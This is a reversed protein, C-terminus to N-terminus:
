RPAMAMLPTQTPASAPTDLSSTAVRPLVVCAALMVCATVVVYWPFVGGLGLQKLELAVTEVTGGFAATAISHGVGLGLARLHTPFLEAPAGLFGALFFLGLVMLGFVAFLNTTHQALTFIPVTVVITGVASIALLARRGFRDALLGALPQLVMLVVLAAFGVLAVDNKDLGASNVLFKPLYTTYTYWAVSGGTSIAVAVGLQRRHDRWLVSMGRQRVARSAQQELHADSEGMHRRLYFVTLGLAAGLAFPVRWGWAALAGESMTHQMVILTLLALLQGLVISVYQFSACFVRRRPNAVENLYSASTGYEGGVSLGQVMRAVVLLVPAATGIVSYGPNVAVALSGAAMLSVSLTLAPRRGYRDAYLGLLWGGLPRMLFGIAFVVATALLQATPDRSPFFAGAFYLGFWAYVFWDYWEVLNGLCGRAIDLSRSRRLPAPAHTTAM